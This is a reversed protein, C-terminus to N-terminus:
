GDSTAGLTNSEEAFAAAMWAISSDDDIVDDSESTLDTDIALGEDVQYQAHQVVWAQAIMLTEEGTTHPTATTTTATTPKTSGGSRDGTLGVFAVTLCAALASLATALRLAFSTGHTSTVTQHSAETASLACLLESQEHLERNLNPSDALAAEFDASEQGTLEGLLYRMCQEQEADSIPHRDDKDVPNM